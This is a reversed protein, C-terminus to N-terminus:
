IKDWNEPLTPLPLHLDPQWDLWSGDFPYERNELRGLIEPKAAEIKDAWEPLIVGAEIGKEYDDIDKWTYSFDPYIVLDLDLDLTNIASLSRTFPLQFNVYYCLFRNTEQNWFLIPSYFTEPELLFLLRNTHWTFRELRWDEGQFDWRRKGNKRNQAYDEEAMCQTAPLLSLVLEQGTDRVVTTPTAHWVRDRYVGRWVVTDGPNWLETM